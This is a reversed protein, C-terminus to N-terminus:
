QSRSTSPFPSLRPLWAARRGGEELQQRRHPGKFHRWSAPTRTVDSEPHPPRPRNSRRAVSTVPLPQAGLRPRSLPAPLSPAGAAAAAGGGASGGRGGGPEVGGKERRRRGRWGPWRCQRMCVSPCAKICIAEESRPPRSPVPRPRRGRPRSRGPGGGGGM